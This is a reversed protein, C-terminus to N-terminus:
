KGFFRLDLSYNSFLQAFCKQIFFTYKFHQNLQCRIPTLILSNRVVFDTIELRYSQAWKVEFIILNGYSLKEFDNNELNGYECKVAGVLVLFIHYAPTLSRLFLDFLM